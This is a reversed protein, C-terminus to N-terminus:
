HDLHCQIFGKKVLIFGKKALIFGKKVLVLHKEVPILYKKAPILRKRTPILRKKTPISASHERPYMFIAEAPMTPLTSARSGKCRLPTPSHCHQLPYLYFFPPFPEPPYLPSKYGGSGLHSLTSLELYFFILPTFIAM